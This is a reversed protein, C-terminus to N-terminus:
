SAFRVTTGNSIDLNCARRWAAETIRDAAARLIVPPISAGAKRGPGFGALANAPDVLMLELRDKRRIAILESLFWNLHTLKAVRRTITVLRVACDTEFDDITLLEPLSGKNPVRCPFVHGLLHWVLFRLEGGGNMEPSYHRQILVREGEPFGNRILAASINKETGVLPPLRAMGRAPLATWAPGIRARLGPPMGKGGGGGPVVVAFEPLALDARELHDFLMERDAYFRAAEPDEIVLTGADKLARCFRMSPSRLNRGDAQTNLFLGIRFRGSEVRARMRGSEGPPICIWRLGRREAARAVEELFLHDGKGAWNIGLDYHNVAAM